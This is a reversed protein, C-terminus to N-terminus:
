KNNGDLLLNEIKRFNGALSLSRNDIKRYM